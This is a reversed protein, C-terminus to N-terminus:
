ARYVGDATKQYASYPIVTAFNSWKLSLGSDGLQELYYYSSTRCLKTDGLQEAKIGKPMMSKRFGNLYVLIKMM